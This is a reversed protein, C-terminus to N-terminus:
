GQSATATRAGHGHRALFFFGIGSKLFKQFEDQMEAARKREEVEQFVRQLDPRPKTIKSDWGETVAYGYSEWGEHQYEFIEWGETVVDIGVASDSEAEGPMPLPAPKDLRVRGLRLRRDALGKRHRADPGTRSRPDSQGVRAGPKRDRQGVRAGPNRKGSGAGPKRKGRCAM